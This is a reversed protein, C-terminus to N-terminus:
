EPLCSLCILSWTNMLSKVSCNTSGDYEIKEAHTSQFCVMRYEYLSQEEIWLINIAKKITAIVCISKTRCMNDFSTVICNYLPSVKIKRLVKRCRGGLQQQQSCREPHNCGVWCAPCGKPHCHLWILLRPSWWGEGKYLQVLQWSHESGRSPLFKSCVM